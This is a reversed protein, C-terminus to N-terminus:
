VLKESDFAIGQMFSLFIPASCALDHTWHYQAGAVPMRNYTMIAVSKRTLIPNYMSALEGFSAAIATSGAISLLLGYVLSVPGGNLLGSLLGGAISEWSAQLTSSFAFVPLFGLYRQWAPITLLFCHSEVM